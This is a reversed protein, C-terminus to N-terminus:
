QKEISQYIKSVTNFSIPKTCFKNLMILYQETNIINRIKQLYLNFDKMVSVQEMDGICGGQIIVALVHDYKYIPEQLISIIDSLNYGRYFFDGDYIMILNPLDPPLQQQEKFIKNKMRYLEDTRIQPGEFSNVTCHNKVAWNDLWDLHEEKALGLTLVDEIILEGFGSDFAVKHSFNKIQECYIDLEDKELIRHARGAKKLMVPPASISHYLTFETKEAHREEDSATLRSIECYFSENTFSNTLKLDPVRSTNGVYVPQDFEVAFESKKFKIAAQLVTEAEDFKAVDKLRNLLGNYNDCSKLQQLSEAFDAFWLRTHAVQNYIYWFFPHLKVGSNNKLFDAGFEDKLFEFAKKIRIVQANDLGVIQECHDAIIDWDCCQNQDLLTM